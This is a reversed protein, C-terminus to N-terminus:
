LTEVRKVGKWLFHTSVYIYRSMIIDSIIQITM